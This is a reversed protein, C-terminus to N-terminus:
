KHGYSEGLFNDRVEGMPIIRAADVSEDDLGTTHETREFMQKKM